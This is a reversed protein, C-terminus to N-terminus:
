LAVAPCVSPVDSVSPARPRARTKLRARCYARLRRRCLTRSRQTKCRLLCWRRGRWRWSQAHPSKKVQAVPCPSGVAHNGLGKGCIRRPGAQTSRRPPGAPPTSHHSFETSFEQRARPTSPTHLGHNRRSPDLARRSGPQPARCRCCPM